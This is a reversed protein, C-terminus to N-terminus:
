KFAAAADANLPQNSQIQKFQMVTRDGQKELLQIQQVHTGGTIVINQFIQKSIMSNPQLTLQWKTPQGTLQLSFQKQLETTDGRLVALLLQIQAASTRTAKWTQNRKDWQDIGSSKVRLRLDLPKQTHWFLGVKAVIAFKGESNLPQSSQRLFRQQVFQGQVSNHQQLQRSLDAPSFAYVHLSGALLFASFIWRM